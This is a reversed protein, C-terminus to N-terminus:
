LEKRLEIIARKYALGSLYELKAKHNQMYEAKTLQPLHCHLQEYLSTAEGDHYIIKYTLQRHIVEFYKEFVLPPINKNGVYQRETEDKVKQCVELLIVKADDMLMEQEADHAVRTSEERSLYFSKFTMAVHILPVSKRYEKQTRLYTALHALLAPINENRTASDQLARQLEEKEMSPLHEQIDCMAPAILQEGFRESETFNGVAQICLKINRLIKSLTPDVDHYIRFLGQNVKAFVLRQTHVLLEEETCTAYHISDFYAKVQVITGAEDQIFLDALCDLAVDELPMAFLSPDLKGTLSKRRLYVTAIKRCFFIFESLAQQSPREALLSIITQRLEMHELNAGLIGLITLLRLQFATVPKLDSTEPNTLQSTLYEVGTM